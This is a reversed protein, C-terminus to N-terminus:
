VAAKKYLLVIVGNAGVGGLGSTQSILTSNIGAGGGGGGGPFGGAGGSFAVRNNLGQGGGGGGGGARSQGTLPATGGPSGNSNSGGAGGAALPTSAGNQSPSGSASAAGRGGDGPSSSVADFFGFLSSISATASGSVSTALSGFTSATGVTAATTTGAAGGSGVTYSITAGLDAPNIQQAVYGGGLGGSGGSYSVGSGGTGNGGRGGGGGGGICIAWFDLIQAVPAPRSWVGSTTLIEITFGGAIATKIASITDSVQVTSGAGGSGYWANYAGDSITEVGEQATDAATSASAAATSASAAATSASAAATSAAQAETIERVVADDFYYTHGNTVTSSNLSVYPTFFSKGAPVVLKGSVKVWNANYATGAAFSATVNVPNARASDYTTIGLIIGGAATAQTNTSKGRVWCEFLYTEGPTCPLYVQATTSAALYSFPNGAAAVLRLSRTGSRAVDGTGVNATVAVGNNLIAFEPDDFGPNILINAGSLYYGEGTKASARVAAGRNRVQSPTRRTGTPTTSNDFGDYLENWSLQIDGAVTGLAGNMWEGSLLGTKKVSIDDFWVTSGAAAGATVAVKVRISTVGAPVEYATGVAPPGETSGIQVFSASGARSAIASGPSQTAAVETETFEVVSLTIAGAGVTGTSKVWCSIYLFDGPAVSISQNSYLSRATGNGTVKASGGSGSRTTTGDWEWGTDAALSISTDFGGQTMLEPNVLNINAIPIVGLVKEPIEGYITKFDFWTLSKDILGRAWTAIPGLGPPGPKGTIAPTLGDVFDGIGTAIDAFTKGIAEAGDNLNSWITNIVPPTLSQLNAGRLWTFVPKLVTEVVDGFLDWLWDLWKFLPVLINAGLGTPEPNPTINAFLKWLWDLWTLIPKLITEVTAGFSDWLWKLFVFLPSLVGAASATPATLGPTGSFFKWVWDLWTFIPKLITEVTAGFQEWLWDLWKFLPVLINAGLGTPEPNPTINAFLKWLWNLWVFVPKLVTEVAEGFQEWLWDLWKFLPVLIFAAPGTPEPNPGATNTFLRWMWNLFEFLDELLNGVAATFMEWVTDIFKFIPVLIFAAPGTPEPNDGPTNTFLRWAWNLFEFLDELLNGAVATFMEWVADILKFIPVLLTSGLGTPEPNDGPVNTFLRWLWNLWKFIPVLLDSGLGTPEPNPTIGSFLNWMWTLWEVLPEGFWQILARVPAFAAQIALLIVRDGTYEGKIAALLSEGNLLEQGWQFLQEFATGLPGPFFFGRVAMLISETISERLRLRLDDLTNQSVEDWQPLPLPGRVATYSLVDGAWSPQETM